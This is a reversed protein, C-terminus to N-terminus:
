TRKLRKRGFLKALDAGTLLRLNERGALAQANPSFEGASVYICDRAGHTERAALLERLPAIGTQAVKWRRCSMLTIRGDKRLQYDAADGQLPELTYGDRRLGAELGTSFEEWSLSRLQGLIEAVAAEGPVRLQRWAAIAAIVAFPLAASAAILTPLFLRVGFFISASLLVSMWWPSRMLVNFLSQKKAM